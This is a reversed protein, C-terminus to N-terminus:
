QEESGDDVYGCGEAALSTSETSSSYLRWSPELVGRNNRRHFKDTSGLITHRRLYLRWLRRDSASQNSLTRCRSPGDTAPEQTKESITPRPLTNSSWTVTHPRISHAPQHQCINGLLPQLVLRSDWWVSDRDLYRNDLMWGDNHPLLPAYLVNAHSVPENVASSLAQCSIWKKYFTLHLDVETWM